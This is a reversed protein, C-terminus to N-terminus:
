HRALHTLREAAHRASGPISRAANSLCGRAAHRANATSANPSYIGASAVSIDSLLREGVRRGRQPELQPTQGVPTGTATGGAEGDRNTAAGPRCGVNSVAGNLEGRVPACIPGYHRAGTLRQPHDDPVATSEADSCDVFPGLSLWLLISLSALLFAWPSGVPDPPADRSGSSMCSTWRSCARRRTSNRRAGRAPCPGAFGFRMRPSRSRSSDLRLAM